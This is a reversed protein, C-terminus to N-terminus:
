YMGGKQMRAIYPGLAFEQFHDTGILETLYLALDPEGEGHYEVKLATTWRLARHPRVCNIVLTCFPHAGMDLATVSVTVPADSDALTIAMAAHMREDSLWRGPSALSPLCDRRM